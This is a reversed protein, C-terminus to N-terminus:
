LSVPIRPNNPESLTEGSTAKSLCVSSDKGAACLPLILIDPQTYSAQKECHGECTCNGCVALLSGTRAIGTQVEDAILLVNQETCLKRAAAIYGDQPVFVGAEGQIPEVLLTPLLVTDTNSETRGDAPICPGM